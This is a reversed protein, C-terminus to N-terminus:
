RTPFTARSAVTVSVQQDGAVVANDVVDATFTVSMEDARFRVSQPLRLSDFAGGSIEVVAEGEARPRTVVYTATGSSETLPDGVRSLTLQEHDTILLETQSLQYGASTAIVTVIQDGELRDNDIANAFFPHSLRDGDDFQVSAPVVLRGPSTSTLVAIANGTPDTRRVQMQVAGGNEPITNSATVLELEEFDTVNVTDSGSVYGPGSAVVTAVRVVDIVDNDVATIVFPDSLESGNAFTITSPVNLLGNPSVSLTATLPVSTDTRVLQATTSGGNEQISDDDIFLTLPEYDLVEISGVADIMGISSVTVAVQQDGDLIQNDRGILTVTVQSQGAPMMIQTPSWLLKDPRSVQLQVVADRGADLRTVTLTATDSNEFVTPSSMRLDFTEYDTVEVFGVGSEFNTATATVGVFQTGDLLDDDVAFVPVTTSASGAPITVFASGVRLETDDSVGLAVVIPVSLDANRRSVTAIAQGGNESISDPDITIEM